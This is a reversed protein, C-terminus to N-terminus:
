KHNVTHLHGALEDKVRLKAHKLEALKQDYEQTHYLPKSDELQKIQEDLERHKKTLYVHHDM